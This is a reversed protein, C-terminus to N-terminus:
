IPVISNIRHILVIRQISNNASGMTDNDTAVSDYQKRINWAIDCLQKYALRTYCEYQLSQVYCGQFHNRTTGVFISQGGAYPSTCLRQINFSELPDSTLLITDHPHHSATSMNQSTDTDTHTGDNGNHPITALTDSTM